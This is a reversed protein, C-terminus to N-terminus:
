ATLSDRQDRRRGSTATLSPRATISRGGALSPREPPTTHAADQAQLPGADRFQTAIAWALLGVITVAIATALILNLVITATM